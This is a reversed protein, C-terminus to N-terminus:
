EEIPEKPRYRDALQGLASLVAASPENDALVLRSLVTDLTTANSAALPVLRRILSVRAEPDLSRDVLARGALRAALLPAFGPDPVRVETSPPLREEASWGRDRNLRLFQDIPRRFVDALEALSGASLMAAPLETLPTPQRRAYDEGVVHKTAFDADSPDAVLREIVKALGGEAAFSAGWWADRMAQVRATTRACFRPDIVKHAGTLASDLAMRILEDPPKGELYRPTLPARWEDAAAIEIAEALTLNAPASFGALGPRLTLARVLLMASPPFAAENADGRLAQSAEVIGACWRRGFGWTDSALRKRYGWVANVMPSESLFGAATDKAKGFAKGFRTLAVQDGTRVRLADVAFSFSYRFEGRNPALVAAGIAPLWSRVWREDPHNLVAPLLAALSGQRYERYGYAAHLEVYEKFLENGRTPRAAVYAILKPGDVEALFGGGRDLDIMETRLESWFDAGSMSLGEVIAQAEDDSPTATLNLSPLPTDDVVSDVRARLLDLMKNSPNSAWAQRLGDRLTLADERNRDVALWVVFLRLAEQWADDLESAFLALRGLAAEIQGQEALEFIPAARQQIQRFDVLRLAMAAIRDSPTGPDGALTRLALQIAAEFRDPAKLRKMYEAEFETGLMLGALKETPSKGGRGIPQRGSAANALHAPVHRLGYDDWHSFSSLGLYREAVKHHVTSLGGKRSLFEAFSAHVVRWFDEGQDQVKSLFRGSRLLVDEVIDRADRGVQFELWAVSVPEAAAALHEFVPRHLSRWDEKGVEAEAGEWFREYYGSLGQPLADLRTLMGRGAPVGAGTEAINDFMYALYMFNGDSAAQLRAVFARLDSAIGLRQLGTAVRRDDSVRSWIYDEIDAQQEKAAAEITYSRLPASGAFFTGSDPRRTVLVYVGEPLAPPLLLPNSGGKPREAEDLADVVIWTPLSSYSTGKLLDFLFDTDEGARAPLYEFALHHREIISACIHLLFQEPRTYGFSASAFFAFANNRRTFEAALATKGLGSDALM